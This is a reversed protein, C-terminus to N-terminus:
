IQIPWDTEGALAHKEQLRFGHETPTSIAPVDLMDVTVKDLLPYRSLGVNWYSWEKWPMKFLLLTAEIETKGPPLAASKSSRGEM